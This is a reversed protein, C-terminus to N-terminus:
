FFLLLISKMIEVYNVSYFRSILNLNYALMYSLNLSLLLIILGYFFLRKEYEMNQIREILVAMGIIFLAYVNSFRRAGFAEGAWWITIMSNILICGLLGLLYATTLARKRKWLLMGLLGASAILLLPTSTFLSHRFSFLQGFLHPELPNFFATQPSAFPNGYMLYASIFLPLIGIISFFFSITYGRIKQMGVKKLLLESAFLITPIILLTINQQRVALMLGVSLGFFVYWKASPKKLYIKEVYLFIMSTSIFFSIAHSMSPEVGVYQALFGGFVVIPISAKIIWDKKVHKKALLYALYFGITAYTISGLLTIFQHVISYGNTQLHMGFLNLFLVLLHAVIFFPALLVATGIPWKNVYEKNLVEQIRVEKEEKSVEHSTFANNSHLWPANAAQNRFDLDHDLLLSPLYAYYGEGDGGVGYGTAYFRLSMMLVFVLFLLFFYSKTDLRKIM